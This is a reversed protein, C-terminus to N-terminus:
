EYCGTSDFAAGDPVCVTSPDKDHPVCVSVAGSCTTGSEDTATFDIHYV